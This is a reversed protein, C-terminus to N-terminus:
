PAVETLRHATLDATFNDWTRQTFACKYAALHLAKHAGREEDTTPVTRVYSFGVPLPFKRHTAAQEVEEGWPLAAYWTSSDV